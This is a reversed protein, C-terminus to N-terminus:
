VLQHAKSGVIINYTAGNISKLVLSRWHEVDLFNEEM